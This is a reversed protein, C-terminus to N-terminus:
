VCKLKVDVWQYPFPTFNWSYINLHTDIVVVLVMGCQGQGRIM